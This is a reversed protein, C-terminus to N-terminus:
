GLKNLIISEIEEKVLDEKIEELTEKAFANLLLTRARNKEIGRSRLYFIAEQDLQGTTCGHSCKVDDAWIELQPKTNVTATDSLLINNNSQFANTKQADPRVYIRGNFVGKAQEDIIGKYLENSYSHPKRHDVATNNDVHTQGSLLYLGNMHAECNEADVSIYINNRILAAKFSFTNSYFRSDKHQHAYIGEVSFNNAQYNQLKTYRVEANEKVEAEFISNAFAPEEGRTVTKEYIRLRCGQEGVVLIRPHIVNQTDQADLFHYIFTPINDTNSKARIFLGQNFLSFNLSAFPDTTQDGIQGLCAAAQPEERLTNDDLIKIILESSASRIASFEEMFLGNIFVLHNAEKLEYFHQSCADATWESETPEISFNFNKELIRTIPTYKYAESKKDPLGLEQFQKFSAIKLGKLQSGEAFHANTWSEFYSALTSAITQAQEIM